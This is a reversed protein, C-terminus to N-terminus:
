KIRSHRATRCRARLLFKIAFFADIFTQIAITDNALFSDFDSEFSAAPEFVFVNKDRADPDDELGVLVHDRAVAFAACCVDFVIWRGDSRQVPRKSLKAQRLVQITSPGPMQITEKNEESNLRRVRPASSTADLVSLAHAANRWWPVLTEDGFVVEVDIHQEDAPASKHCTM